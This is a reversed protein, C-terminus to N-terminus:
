DKIFRLRAIESASEVLVSYGGPSLGSVNLVGDELKDQSVVRGVEDYITCTSNINEPASSFEIHILDTAPNPYLTYQPHDAHISEISVIAPECGYTLYFDIGATFELESTGTAANVFTGEVLGWGGHGDALTSQQNAGIGVQYAYFFNPPAHTVQLESGAYDGFGTLTSNDGDITYYMWDLYEDTVMGPDDFYSTPFAQNSWEDWDMGSILEIHATFGSETNDAKVFDGTLTASGDPQTLWLVADTIFNSTGLDQVDVFALGHHLESTDGACMYLSDQQAQFNLSLALFLILNLFKM